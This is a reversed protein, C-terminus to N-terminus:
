LIIGVIYIGTLVGILLLPLRYPARSRWLPMTVVAIFSTIGLYGVLDAGLIGAWTSAPRVIWWPLVDHSMSQPQVADRILSADPDISALSLVVAFTTAVLFLVAALIWRKGDRRIALLSERQLCWVTVPLVFCHMAYTRIPSPLVTDLGFLASLISGLPITRLESTVINRSALAYLDDPLLRGSWAALLVVPVAVVAPAWLAFPISASELALLLILCLTVIVLLSTLSFHVQRVLWGLPTDALHVELSVAAVSPIVPQGARAGHQHDIIGVSSTISSDAAVSQGSASHGQQRQLQDLPILMRGPSRRVTDVMLPRGDAATGYSYIVTGRVDAIAGFVSHSRGVSDIHTSVVAPSYDPVFVFALIIGTITEVLIALILFRRLVDVFTPTNTMKSVAVAM